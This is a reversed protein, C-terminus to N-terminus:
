RARTVIERDDAVVAGGDDVARQDGGAEARRQLAEAAVALHPEFDAEAGVGGGGVEDGVHLDAEHEARHHLAAAFGAAGLVIEVRGGYAAGVREATGIEAPDLGAGGGVEDGELEAQRVLLLHDVRDLGQQEGAAAAVGRGDDDVAAEGHFVADDGADVLIC